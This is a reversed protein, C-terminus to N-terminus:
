RLETLVCVCVCVAKSKDIHTTPSGASMQNLGM